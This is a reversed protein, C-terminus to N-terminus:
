HVLKVRKMGAQRTRNLMERDHASFRGTHAKSLYTPADNLPSLTSTRRKSVAQPASGLSTIFAFISKLRM